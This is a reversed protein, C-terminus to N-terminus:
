LLRSRCGAMRAGWGGGWSWGCGCAGDDGDQAAAPRKVAAFARYPNDTCDAPEEVLAERKMYALPDISIAHLWKRNKDKSQLLSQHANSTTTIPGASPHQTSPVTRM